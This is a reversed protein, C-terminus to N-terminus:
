NRKILIPGNTSKKIMETHNDLNQDEEKFLYYNLSNIKRISHIKKSGNVKIVKFVFIM